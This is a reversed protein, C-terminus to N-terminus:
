FAIKIVAKIAVAAFFAIWVFLIRLWFPVSVVPQYPSWDISVESNAPMNELAVDLLTNLERADVVVLHPATPDDIKIYDM